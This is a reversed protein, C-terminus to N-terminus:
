PHDFNWINKKFEAFKKQKQRVIYVFFLHEYNFQTRFSRFVYYLLSKFYFTFAFLDITSDVTVNTVYFYYIYFRWASKGRNLYGHRYPHEISIIHGGFHGSPPWFLATTVEPTLNELFFSQFHIWWPRKDRNLCGHRHKHAILIM